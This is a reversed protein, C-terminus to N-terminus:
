EVILKIMTIIKDLQEDTCGTCLDVIDQLKQDRYLEDNGKPENTDYGMLWAEDCDLAVAILHVADQKAKWDGKLYRSISSKSIGTMNSLETATKGRMTLIQRLRISFPVINNM